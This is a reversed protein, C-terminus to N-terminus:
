ADTQLKCRKSKHRRYLMFSTKLVKLFDFYDEYNSDLVVCEIGFLSVERASLIFFTCNLRPTCVIMVCLIHFGPSDLDQVSHSSDSPFSHGPYVSLRLTGTLAVHELPGILLSVHSNACVVSESDMAESCCLLRNIIRGRRCLYRQTLTQVAASEVVSSRRAHM